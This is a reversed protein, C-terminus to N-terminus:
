SKNKEKFLIWFALGFAIFGTNFLSFMLIGDLERVDRVVLLGYTTNIIFVGLTAGLFKGIKSKDVEFKPQDDHSFSWISYAVFGTKYSVSVVMGLIVLISTAVLIAAPEM